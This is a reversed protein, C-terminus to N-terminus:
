VKVARGTKQTGRLHLGPPLVVCESPPQGSCVAPNPEDAYSWFSGNSYVYRPGPCVCSPDTEDAMGSPDIGGTPANGCYRYLNADAAAPDESLWRGVTSDYWRVHRPRTAVSAGRLGARGLARFGYSGGIRRRSKNMESILM